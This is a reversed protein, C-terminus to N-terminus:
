ETSINKLFRIVEANVINPKEMNLGHGAEPVIIVEAHPLAKLAKQKFIQPDKYLVPKGGAMILVPMNIMRLEEPEYIQHQPVDFMKVSGYEIVDLIHETWIDMEANSYGGGMWEFFKTYKKRNPFFMFYRFGKWAIGGNMPMFTESPDLLILASLKDPIERGLALALWSGYSLGAVSPMEIGYNETIQLFWKTYDKIDTIKRESPEGKGGYTLMDLAYVKFHKSLEGANPYWMCADAFLGPILVLPKENDHGSIIVHTKGFDTEVYDETYTTSWMEMSRDYSKCAIAKGEETKYLANPNKMATTHRHSACSTVLILVIFLSYTIIQSSNM